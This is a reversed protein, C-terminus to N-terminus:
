EVVRLLRERRGVHIVIEDDRCTERVGDWFAHEVHEKNCHTALARAMAGTGAISIFM